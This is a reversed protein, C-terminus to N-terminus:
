RFYKHNLTTVQLDNNLEKNKIWMKGQTQPDMLLPYSRSKTVILANQVSLEDNPLGQLTWESITASEVLMNTINLGLTYPIEHKKLLESWTSVLNARYHQNYPGCYSLFGTALLVDGVLRGLQEKYEKSQETWRVKEGGLGNILATAATMKRLCANAANMLRQKEGVAADYQNKVEQLANERDLLEQEAAALDAMAVKLRAEQSVLNAKLPLVEKNVSHFFAMAKTWSLLGAVDGCVRKATEMNYDEMEFYPQLLDVMENNITDKPYNQLQLLFTTSAM